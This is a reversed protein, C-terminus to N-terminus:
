VISVSIFKGLRKAIAQLQEYKTKTNSHTMVFYRGSPTTTYKPHARVDILPANNITFSLNKVIEIGFFEITKVFTDSAKPECIITGDHLVVKLLTKPSKKHPVITYGPEVTVRKRTEVDIGSIWEGKLMELKARFELLLKGSESLKVADDYRKDAFADSGESALQEEVDSIEELIVDFAATVGDQSM